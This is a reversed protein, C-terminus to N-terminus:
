ELNKGDLSGEITLNGSFLDAFNTRIEEINTFGLRSYGIKGYTLYSETPYQDFIYIFGDSKVLGGKIGFVSFPIIGEITANIPAYDILKKYVSKMKGWKKMHLDYVYAGAFDPYVPGISGDQLLFGSAPLKISDEEWNLPEGLLNEITMPDYPTGCISGNDGIPVGGTLMGPAGTSSGSNSKPPPTSMDPRVCTPGAAITRIAGHKDTYWWGKLQLFATDVGYIGDPKMKGINYATMQAKTTKTYPNVFFPTVCDVNAGSAIIHAQVLFHYPSVYGAYSHPLVPGVTALSPGGFAGQDIRLQCVAQPSSLYYAGVIPDNWGAQQWEVLCYTTDAKVRQVHMVKTIYRTLWFSCANMGWVPASAGMIYDGLTCFNRTIPYDSCYVSSDVQGEHYNITGSNVTPVGYATASRNLVAQIFANRAKDEAAWLALQWAIFTDIDIRTLPDGPVEEVIWKHTADQSISDLTGANNVPCMNYEVGDPGVTPCPTPGFTPAETIGPRSFYATYYSRLWIKPPGDPYDGPGGGGNIIAIGQNLHDAQMAQYSYCANDGSLVYADDVVDPAAVNEFDFLTRPVTDVKFGVQGNIYNEDIVQFFLYRGQIVQLYVPLEMEKLYDYIEPIIVEAKNNAIKIVATNTWAFQINNPSSYCAQEPYAIGSDTWLVNPDWQFTTDIRKNIQVISRTSYVVFSDESSLITVIRGTISSFIASGALTEVSPTFDTFDDISSWSISNESDWFGLRIGAAFIGIQGEMNLFSPTYAAVEFPDYKFVEWSTDPFSDLTTWLAGGSDTAYQATSGSTTTVDLYQIIGSHIRYIRAGYNTVSSTWSLTILSEAGITIDVQASPASIAGDVNKSAVKYSYDGADLGETTAASGLTLSAVDAAFSDVDYPIAESSLRYYQPEGVRYCYVDRNIICYSWNKHTGVPPIDLEIAQEWSGTDDAGKRWIGDECLAIIVNEFEPTQILFISDIRSTLAEIDLASNTGFYSKYGAATPLFNYGKYGVVPIRTEPYDEQGTAHLTEPYTQPNLPVFSRTIDIIKARQTM